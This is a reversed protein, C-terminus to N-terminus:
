MFRLQGLEISPKGKLVSLLVKQDISIKVSEFFIRVSDVLTVVHANQFTPMFSNAFATSILLINNGFINGKFSWGAPHVAWQKHLIM